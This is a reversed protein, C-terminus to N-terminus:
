GPLSFYEDKYALQGLELKFYLSEEGHVKSEADFHVMKITKIQTSM